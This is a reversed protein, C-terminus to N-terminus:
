SVVLSPPAYVRAALERDLLYLGQSDEGLLNVNDILDHVNAEEEGQEKVFWDLFEKTRYDKERLAVEYIDNISATIFEEHALSAELIEMVTSVTTEPKEISNLTAKQNNHHLYEYFLLAHDREEQAQVMFWHAFGKLGKDQLINNFELYLYASFLEKNIQHSLMETIATKMM